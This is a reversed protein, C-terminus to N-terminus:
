NANDAVNDHLSSIKAYILVSAATQLEKETLPNRFTSSGLNNM